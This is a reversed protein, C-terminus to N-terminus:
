AGKLFVKPFFWAPLIHRLNSWSMERGGLFRWVPWLLLQILLTHSSTWEKNSTHLYQLFVNSSLALLYSHHLCAWLHLLFGEPQSTQQKGALWNRSIIHLIVQFMLFFVGKLSIHRQQVSQVRLQFTCLLQTERVCACVVGCWRIRETGNRFAGLQCMKCQYCLKYTWYNQVLM